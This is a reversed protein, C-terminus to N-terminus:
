ADHVLQGGAAIVGGPQEQPAEGVGGGIRRQADGVAPAAAVDGDDVVGAEQVAAVAEGARRPAQLVEPDPAEDGVRRASGSTGDIVRAVSRKTMTSSKRGCAATSASECCTLSSRKESM